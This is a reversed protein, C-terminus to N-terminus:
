QTRRKKKVFVFLIAVICGIVTVLVFSMDTLYEWM